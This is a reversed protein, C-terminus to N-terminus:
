PKRKIIPNIKQLLFWGQPSTPCVAHLLSYIFQDNNLELEDIIDETFSGTVPDIIHNDELYIQINKRTIAGCYLPQTAFRLINHTKPIDIMKIINNLIMTKNIQLRKINTYGAKTIPNAILYIHLVYLSAIKLISILYESLSPTQNPIYFHNPPYNTCLYRASRNAFNNYTQINFDSLLLKALSKNYGCYSAIAKDLLEIYTDGSFKINREQLIYLLEKTTRASVNQQNIIFQM